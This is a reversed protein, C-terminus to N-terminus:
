RVAEIWDLRRGCLARAASPAVTQVPQRADERSLTLPGFSFPPGGSGPHVGGTDYTLAVTHAGAALEVSGLDTYLGPWNLEARKAGVENGDVTVSSKGFWDGALWATYRGAEPATIQASATGTLSPTVVPIARARTATVLYGSAVQAKRALRMVDAYRPVAAAQTADGLALHELIRPGGSAPRQWVEYYRGSRILRYVSPPRSAAPGRRLVLTRYDLIGDLRLRDIDASEGKDLMQGNQLYDFRRRLESAGEPDANRMFHRAGYPEYSTMLAPGQGAISHGITELEHLQGRPALSVDHYALANSWLVGGTIAVAVVTAEVRRGLGFLAACGALAAALFAPAAMAIAKGSVWPSSVAVVAGSGLAVIGLYTPLEWAGRRWASWLGFLGAAVVLAILVYTPAMDDPRIRFDGVPWIGFAQLKSLPGFLNGLETEARFNSVKPLWDIAAIIAPVALVVVAAVFLGAKVPLSPVPRRLVFIAAIVLAPFLWAAAPLSLVCVIAACAGALPLAARASSRPRLTWPVLVALLAFLWAGALEKIGGWLSYGFLIAPQAAVFAAFARLPRLPILPGLLAYLSIALMAALFAIYPQFIWAVDYGLLAHGIGIPLLVGTPYGVALTTAITAEYTSPELGALARAHEMVRDTMAFYTATDDLKIYGAFTAEGSLVVPAAFVAFVAIATGLAWPDPRSWRTPGLLLGAIALGAALPAALEATAGTLTAFEGALIVVVLGLPLV